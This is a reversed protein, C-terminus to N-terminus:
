LWLMGPIHTYEKEQEVSCKSCKFKYRLDLSDGQDKFAEFAEDFVKAPLSMVFDQLEKFTFDKANFIKDNIEITDLQIVFLNFIYQIIGDKINLHEKDENTRIDCFNFKLTTDKDKITVPKYDSPKYTTINDFKIDATEQHKCEKCELTDKFTDGISIKRIEILLLKQEAASLVPEKTDNTEIKICPKILTEYLVKDNLPEKKEIISLYDKQEKASFQRYKITRNTTIENTYEINYILAM